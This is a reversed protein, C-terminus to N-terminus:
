SMRRLTSTRRDSSRESYTPPRTQRGDGRYPEMRGRERERRQEAEEETEIYKRRLKLTKENRKERPDKTGLFFQFIFSGFAYHFEHFFTYRNTMGSEKWFLFALKRPNWIIGNEKKVDKLNHVETGTFIISVLCSLFICFGIVILSIVLINFWM